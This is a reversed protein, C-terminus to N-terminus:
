GWSLTLTCSRPAETSAYRADDIYADLQGELLHLPHSVSHFGEPGTGHSTNKPLSKEPDMATPTFVQNPRYM